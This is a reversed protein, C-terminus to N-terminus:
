VWRYCSHLTEDVRGLRQFPASRESAVPRVRRDSDGHRYPIPEMRGSSCLWAARSTWKLVFLRVTSEKGERTSCCVWCRELGLNYLPCTGLIINPSFLWGLSSRWGATFDREGTLGNNHLRLERLERLNGLSDPICGTCTSCWCGNSIYVIKLFM